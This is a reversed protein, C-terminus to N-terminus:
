LKSLKKMLPTLEYNDRYYKVDITLIEDNDPDDFYRRNGEDLAEKFSYNGIMTTELFEAYNSGTWRRWGVFAHGPVLVILPELGINELASAFLVTGDICNASGLKLTDQPLRIRQTIGSPYSIVSNVYDIDYDNQLALYIAKVQAIVLDYDYSVTVNCTVKKSSLWSFSNDLLLSYYGTSYIRISFSDKHVKGFSHIYENDHLLSVNIDDGSGGSASFTVSIECGTIFDVDFYGIPLNIQKGASVDITDKITFGQDRAYGDKSDSGQYGVFKSEPHYEKAKSILKDIEPIHPTVWTVILPLLEGNDGWLMVDKALMQRIYTQNFVEKNTGEQLLLAKVSCLVTKNENLKDLQESTLVPTVNVTQSDHAAITITNSVENSYGEIEVSVKLQVSQNNDNNITIKVLGCENNNCLKAFNNLFATPITDQVTVSFSIKEIEIVDENQVNNDSPATPNNKKSCSFLGIANFLFFLAIICTFLRKQNLM